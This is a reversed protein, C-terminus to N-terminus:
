AEFLKVPVVLVLIQAGSLAILDECLHADDFAELDSSKAAKPCFISGRRGELKSFPRIKSTNKLLRFVIYLVPMRSAFHGYTWVILEVEEASSCRIHETQRNCGYRYGISLPHHDNIKSHGTYLNRLVTSYGSRNM